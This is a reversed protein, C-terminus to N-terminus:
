LETLEKEINTATESLKIDTLVKLLTRWTKPKLGDDTNLWLDFMEKCCEGPDRHCKDSISKWTPYSFELQISIDSWMHCVKPTVIRQLTSMDPEVDSLSMHVCLLIIIISLKSETLIGLFLQLSSNKM